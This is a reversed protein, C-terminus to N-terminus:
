KGLVNQIKIGQSEIFSEYAERELIEVEFLKEVLADLVEKHKKLLDLATKHATQIIHMVENDVTEEIKDAHDEKVSGFSQENRRLNIPGIKDSMGWRTIMLHAIETARELDNSPGTTVEGFIVQEASYGGLLVTITDIFERRTKLRREEDPTNIVYGGAHGRAIISIKQVPDAYPLLTSLLAHGAEHYAIIKKEHESPIHSKREPGLSVKEISTLLDEQNIKERNKRVARIAGENVISEMDAASFGPTRQAVVELNIDTDMKKNRTYIELVKVRSKKDPNDVVVKREFRGPRLLASDLVDPRNTAAIVVVKDNQVFGDLEVLIQNLAQEREDHGGGMGSGRSRGVADIEDIFIISPSHKKATEFLDRVRSAGVGVFMEVFESGSISFFPVGAEGAVARALLTKGTGPAGTLLIGKPVKAGIALYKEPKRLFDVFEELEEKAEEVGAVDTFKTRKGKEKPDIFKARSKLFTFAQGGFGKAQKFFIWFLMLLLLFPFLFPLIQQFWYATGTQRETSYEISNLEEATVGFSTLSDAFSGAGEKRTFATDGSTYTIDVKPGRVIISSVEGTKIQSAVQSIKAEDKFEDNSAFIDFILIFLLTIIFVRIFFSANLVIKYKRKNRKKKDKM